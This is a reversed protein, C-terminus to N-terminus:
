RDGAQRAAMTDSLSELERNAQASLRESPASRAVQQLVEQAEEYREAASLERASELLMGAAILQKVRKDRKWSKRLDEAADAVDMGDFVDEIREIHGLARYYLDDELLREVDSWHEDALGEVYRLLAEAQVLEEDESKAVLRVLKKHAKGFDEKDLYKLTSKFAKGYDLDPFINVKALEDELLSRPLEDPNGQWAVRGDAGVLYAFPVHEIDWDSHFGFGVTYTLMHDSVFGHVTSESEPSLALVVLGRAAHEDVLAKLKPVRAECPPADTQWIECLVVRHRLSELSPRADPRELDLWGNVRIEPLERGLFDGGASLPLSLILLCLPTRM